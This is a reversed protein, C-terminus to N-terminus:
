QQYMRREGHKSMRYVNGKQDERNNGEMFGDMVNKVRRDQSMRCIHGFMTMKRKIVDQMVNTTMIIRKCVEIITLKHQYRYYKIEFCLLCNIDDMQLTWTEAAYLLTNLVLTRLINLKALFDSKEM